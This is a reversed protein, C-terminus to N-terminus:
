PEAMEVEPQEAEAKLNKIEGDIDTLYDAIQQKFGLTKARLEDNSLVELKAFEEKIKEVLPRIHKIDRDSKSGFVKSLFGLM